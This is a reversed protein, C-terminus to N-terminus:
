RANGGGPQTDPYQFTGDEHDATFSYDLNNYLGGGAIIFDWAESRARRLSFTVVAEDFRLGAVDVWRTWPSVSALSAQLGPALWKPHARCRSVASRLSPSGAQSAARRDCTM